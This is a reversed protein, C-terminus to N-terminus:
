IGDKDLEWKIEEGCGWCYDMYRQIPVTGCAPCTYFVEYERAEKEPVADKKTITIM